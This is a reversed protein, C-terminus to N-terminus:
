CCSTQPAEEGGGGNGQQWNGNGVGMVTAMKRAGTVAVEIIKGHLIGAVVCIDVAPGQRFETENVFCTVTYFYEM